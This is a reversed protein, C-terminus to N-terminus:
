AKLPPPTFVKPNSLPELKVNIFALFMMMVAEPFLTIYVIPEYLLGAINLLLLIAGGFIIIALLPEYYISTTGLFCIPSSVLCAKTMTGNNVLVIFLFMLYIIYFAIPVFLYKRYRSCGPDILPIKGLCEDIIKRDNELEIERGDVGNTGDKGNTGDLGNKGDAGNTGNAGDKGKLSSIEALNNWETTGKYRWKIYTGDNKLEIEKGNSGSAGDNGDNGDSGNTGDLGDKGKLTSIKILNIWNKDGKYRYKIYEDDVSIEIERGDKGSKGNKGNNGRHHKFSFSYAPIV